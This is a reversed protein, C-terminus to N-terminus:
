NLEGWVLKEGNQKSGFLIPLGRTLIEGTHNTFDRLQYASNEGEQQIYYIDQPQVDYIEHAPEHKAFRAELEHDFGDNIHAYGRAAAFLARSWSSSGPYRGLVPGRM